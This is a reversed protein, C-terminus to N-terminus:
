FPWAEPSLPHTTKVFPNGGGRMWWSAQGSVQELVVRSSYGLATSLLFVSVCDATTFRPCEFETMSDRLLIRLSRGKLNPLDASIQGSEMIKIRDREDLPLEDLVFEGSALLLSAPEPPQSDDSLAEGFIPTPFGNALDQFVVVPLVPQDCDLSLQGEIETAPLGSLFQSIQGNLGIQFMEEALTMGDAQHFSANCSAALGGRNHIAIGLMSGSSVTGVAFSWATSISDPLMPAVGVRSTDGNVTINWTANSVVDGDILCSGVFPAEPQFSVTELSRLFRFQQSAEEGAQSFCRITFSGQSDHPNSIVIRAANEPDLHFVQPYIVRPEPVFPAGDGQQRFPQSGNCELCQQGDVFHDSSPQSAMMWPAIALLLIVARWLPRTRPKPLRAQSTRKM